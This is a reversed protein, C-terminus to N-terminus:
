GARATSWKQLGLYVLTLALILVGMFLGAASAHGIQTSEGVGLGFAYRYVYTGVVDSAFFPGGGTLTFVLDFVAVGGLISLLFVTALVPRMMPLTVHIHTRLGSAGDVAAADYLDSPISQLGATLIVLGVGLGHWIGVAILVWMVTHDDALWDTPRQIVHLELLLQNVPGFVPNLLKGIVIGVIAASTVVPMFIVTRLVGRGRMRPNNLWVAFVFAIVMGITVTATAFWLTHGVASWFYRDTLVGAFNTFGVFSKPDGLTNWDYLSIRVNELLPYFLFLTM